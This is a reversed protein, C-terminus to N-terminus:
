LSLCVLLDRVNAGQKQKDFFVHKEYVYKFPKRFKKGREYPNHFFNKFKQSVKEFKSKRRQGIASLVCPDNPFQYGHM